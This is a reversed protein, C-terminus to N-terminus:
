KITNPNLMSQSIAIAYVINELSADDDPWLKSLIRTMYTDEPDEQVEKFLKKYSTKTKESKKWKLVAESTAKNNIYDLDSGFVFFISLKIKNTLTRHLARIKEM